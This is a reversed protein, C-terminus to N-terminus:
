MSRLPAETRSRASTATFLWRLAARLGLACNRVSTLTSSTRALRSIEGGSVRSIHEGIPSPAAATTTQESSYARRTPPAGTRTRAQM